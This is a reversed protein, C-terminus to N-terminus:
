TGETLDLRQSQQSVCLWLTSTEPLREDQKQLDQQPLCMLTSIEWWGELLLHITKQGGKRERRLDKLGELMGLMMAEGM